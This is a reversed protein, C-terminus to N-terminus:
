SIFVAAMSVERKEGTYATSEVGEDSGEGRVLGDIPRVNKNSNSSNSSSKMVEADDKSRSPGVSEELNTRFM